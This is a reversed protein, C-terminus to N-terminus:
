PEIDDVVEAARLVGVRELPDELGRVSPNASPM